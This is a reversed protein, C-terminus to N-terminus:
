FHIDRVDTPTGAKGHEVIKETGGHLSSHDVNSRSNVASASNSSLDNESSESCTVHDSNLSATVMQEIQHLCSQLYDMEIATIRHLLHLLKNLSCGSKGTWDLGHLAAAISGAAIMSPTYMNFSY